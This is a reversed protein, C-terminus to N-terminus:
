SKKHKRSIYSVAIVALVIGILDIGIDSLKGERGPVFLQHLEDSFAYTLALIGALAVNMGRRVDLIWCRVVEYLLGTLIFYEFVHAGKRELWKWWPMPYPTEAGHISSFAFIIGMWLMALTLVIWKRRGSASLPYSM